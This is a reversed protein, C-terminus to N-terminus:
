CYYFLVYLAQYRYRKTSTDTFNYDRDLRCSAVENLETINEMVGKVVENLEATHYLTDSYTQIALTVSDLKNERDSGVREIVIFSTPPTEPVEMFVNVNLNDELYDIVTKEIM